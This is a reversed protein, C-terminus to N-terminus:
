KFYSKLFSVSFIVLFIPWISIVLIREKWKWNKIHTLHSLKFSFYDLLFSFVFGIFLYNLIM